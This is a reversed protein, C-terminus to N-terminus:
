NKRSDSITKDRKNWEGDEAKVDKGSDDELTANFCELFIIGKGALFQAAFERNTTPANILETIYHSPVEKSSPSFYGAELGLAYRREGQELIGRM